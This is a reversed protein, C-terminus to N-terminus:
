ITGEQNSQEQRIRALVKAHIRAGDRQFPHKLRYQEGFQEEYEAREAAEVEAFLSDYHMGEAEDRAAREAATLRRINPGCM